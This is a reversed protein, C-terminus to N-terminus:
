TCKSSKPIDVLRWEPDGVIELGDLSSTSSTSTIRRSILNSRQMTQKVNSIIPMAPIQYEQVNNHKNLSSNVFVLQRLSTRREIHEVILEQVYLIYAAAIVFSIFLQKAFRRSRLRLRM